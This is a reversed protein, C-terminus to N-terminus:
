KGMMIKLLILKKLFILISTFLSGSVTEAALGNFFSKWFSQFLGSSLFVKDLFFPISIATLFILKQLSSQWDQLSRWNKFRTEM